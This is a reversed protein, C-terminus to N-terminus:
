LHEYTMSVQKMLKVLREENREINKIWKSATCFTKANDSYIIEPVGRRAMFKNIAQKFEAVTFYPLVQFHVVTPLSYVILLLYVKAGKSNGTKYYLPGAYDTGVVPFPRQGITLDKPLNGVPPKPFLTVQVRKCEYCSKIIRKTLYKPRPIWYTERVTTKTIGVGGHFSSTHADM